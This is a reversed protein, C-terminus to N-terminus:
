KIILLLRAAENISDKTDLHFNIIILISDLSSGNDGQVKFSTLSKEMLSLIIDPKIKLPFDSYIIFFYNDLM